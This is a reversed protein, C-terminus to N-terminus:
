FYHFSLSQGGDITLVQGTIWSSEETALFVAASAHDQPIGIRKLPIEKRDSMDDGEYPTTGPAIANVRINYPALDLATAQTLMNLGAKTTCNAVRSPYPRNGSISSVNIISGAIGQRIMEEATLQTLLMPAVLGVQLHLEFNKVDLDLFTNTDYRAANNVLLDVRGLENLAETFFTRVGEAHTFDAYFAKGVRGMQEVSKITELAEKEATRYSIVTDAGEKAFAIAIAKGISRNAGTIIAKKGSLRM